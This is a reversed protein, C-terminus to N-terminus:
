EAKMRELLREVEDFHRGTKVLTHDSKNCTDWGDYVDDLGDKCDSRIGYLTDNEKGLVIFTYEYGALSYQVEDGVHIEEKEKKWTEYKAKAEQYSDPFWGDYCQDIDEQTMDWFARRVFGWVENEIEERNDDTYEEVQLHIPLIYTVDTIRLPFFLRKGFPTEAIYDSEHEDPIDIIYKAM